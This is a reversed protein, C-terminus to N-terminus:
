FSTNLFIRRLASSLKPPLKLGSVHGFLTVDYSVHTTHSKVARSECKQSVLQWAVNEFYRKDSKWSFIKM